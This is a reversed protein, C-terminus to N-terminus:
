PSDTPRALHQRIKHYYTLTESKFIKRIYHPHVLTASVSHHSTFRTHIISYDLHVTACVM